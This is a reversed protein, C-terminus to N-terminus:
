VEYKDWINDNEWIEQMKKQQLHQFEKKDKMENFIEEFWEDINKDKPKLLEILALTKDSIPLYTM